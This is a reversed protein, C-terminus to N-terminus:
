NRKQDFMWDFMEQNSYAPVNAGHPDTVGAAAFDEDTYITMRVNGGLEELRDRLMTECDVPVVEDKEGHFIWIPLDVLDDVSGDWLGSIPVAAAFVDPYAAIMGWVGLAGMSHGTIYIRDMDVNGNTRAIEQITGMLAEQVEEDTWGKASQEDAPSEGAATYREPLQPALVYCPHLEQMEETVFSAADKTTIHTINDDIFIAISTLGTPGFVIRKVGAFGCVIGGALGGIVSAILPKKLRLNVGYLAPETTGLLASCGTSVALSKFSKDKAQLAVAFAAAGQAINAVLFGPGLMDYGFAEIAALALPITVAYHMGLMIVVPGFAGFFIPLFWPANNQFVSLVAELGQGVLNGLPGVICYTLPTMILLTLMPRFFFKIVKPSAKDALKQVWSAAYIVLVVPIVTSTYTALTVPLFGFMSVPEGANVMATYNPHVMMFGITLGVMPDVGFRVSSTYALIVPLFLFPADGAISLLSCTPSAADLLGAMTLLVLLVKVMAAGTIAAIAPTFLSSLTDMARELMKPKQGKLDDAEVRDVTGGTLGTEAILEDYVHHVDPGIVNHDVQIHCVFKEAVTKEPFGSLLADEGVKCQAHKRGSARNVIMIQDETGAVIRRDISKKLLEQDFIEAFGREAFLHHLSIKLQDKKMKQPKVLLVCLIVQHLDCRDM